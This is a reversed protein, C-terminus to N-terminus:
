KRPEGSNRRLTNREYHLPGVERVELSVALGRSDFLPELATSLEGFLREAAPRLDSEPHGSGVRLTVHVFGHAPDGDALFVQECGLARTRLASVEFLGTALAAEHLVRLLAPVNLNPELNSSYEVILHPM